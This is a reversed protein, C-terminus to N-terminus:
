PWYSARNTALDDLFKTKPCLPFLTLRAINDIKSAAERVEAINPLRVYNSGEIVVNPARKEMYGRLDENPPWDLPRPLNTWTGMNLRTAIWQLPM